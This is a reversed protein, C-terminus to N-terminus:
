VEECSQPFIQVYVNNEFDLEVKLIFRTVILEWVTVTQGSFWSTISFVVHHQQSQLGSEAQCVPQVYGTKCINSGDRRNTDTPTPLQLEAEM